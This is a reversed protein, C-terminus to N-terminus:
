EPIKVEAGSLATVIVTKDGKKFEILNYDSIYDYEDYECPLTPTEGVILGHKGNQDTVVITDTGFGCSQNKFVGIVDGSIGIIAYGDDTGDYLAKSTAPTLTKPFSQLKKGTYDFAVCNGDTFNWYVLMNGYPVVMAGEKPRWGILSRGNESMYADYHKENKGIVRVLHWVEEEGLTNFNVETCEEAPLPSNDLIDFTKKFNSDVIEVQFVGNEQYAVFFKGGVTPKVQDYQRILSGDKLSYFGNDALFYDDYVKIYECYEDFGDAIVKGKSDMIGSREYFSFAFYDGKIVIEDYIPEVIVKGSSDNVGYFITLDTDNHIRTIEYKLEAIAAQAKETVDKGAADIYVSKGSRSFVALNNEIGDFYIGIDGYPISVIIKGTVGNIMHVIDNINDDYYAASDPFFSIGNEVFVDDRRTPTYPEYSEIVYDEVPIEKYAAKQTVAATAEPPEATEPAPTTETSRPTETVQVPDRAIATGPAKTAEVTETTEPVKSTEANELQEAVGAAANVATNEGEPATGCSAFLMVASLAALLAKTINKMTHIVKRKSIM